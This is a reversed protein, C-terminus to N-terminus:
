QHLKRPRKPLIKRTLDAGFESIVNLAADTGFAIGVRTFTSGAGRDSTPYYANAIASSALSGILRAFNLSVGGSDTRTVVVRSIAYGFRSGFTGQGKRFYRPDEHLLVPFVFNKFLSNSAQDALSAGFRKGYGEAGQGYGPFIDAAQEIGATTGAVLLNSPDATGHLSLVFKDRSTLPPVTEGSSEVVGYAPFIKLIRNNQQRSKEPSSSALSATGEQGHLTASLILIGSCLAALRTQMGRSHILRVPVAGNIKAEPQCGTSSTHDEVGLPLQPFGSLTLSPREAGEKLEM